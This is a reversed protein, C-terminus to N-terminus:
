WRRIAVKGECSKNDFCGAHIYYTGTAPAVFALNSGNGNTHGVGSANVGACADDNRVMETGSANKVRLYTDGQRYSGKVGCTGAALMMGQYLFVPYVRTNRTASNTNSVKFTFSGDNATATGRECIFRHGERCSVNEWRGTSRNDMACDKVGDPDYPHGAAWNLIKVVAGSDWRWSGESLIDNFGIWWTNGYQAFKAAKNHIFDQEGWGKISVLQYDGRNCIERAEYWTKATSVFIYDHGNNAWTIASSTKGNDDDAYEEDMMGEDLMCGGAIACTLLVGILKSPYRSCKIEFAM